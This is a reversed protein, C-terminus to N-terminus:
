SVWPRGENLAQVLSWIGSVKGQAPEFEHDELTNSLAQGKQVWQFSSTVYVYRFLGEVEHGNVTFILDKGRTYSVTIHNEILQALTMAAMPPEKTTTYGFYASKTSM